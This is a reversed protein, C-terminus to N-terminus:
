RTGHPSCRVEPNAQLGSGAGFSGCGILSRAGSAADAALHGAQGPSLIRQVDVAEKITELFRRVAHDNAARVQAEDLTNFIIPVIIRGACRAACPECALALRCTLLM